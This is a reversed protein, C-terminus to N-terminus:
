FNNGGQFFIEFFEVKLKDRGALYEIDDVLLFNATRYVSRFDQITGNAMAEVLEDGMEKCNVIIVRPDDIANGIANLLHTKGTGSEGHIFLPNFHVEGTATNRAAQIAMGNDEGQVM